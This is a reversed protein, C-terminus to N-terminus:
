NWKQTYYPQTVNEVLIYSKFCSVEVALYMIWCYKAAVPHRFCCFSVFFMYAVPITFIIQQSVSIEDPFFTLHKPVLLLSLPQKTSQCISGPIHDRSNTTPSWLTTAPLLPLVTHRCVGHSPVCAALPGWLGRRRRM